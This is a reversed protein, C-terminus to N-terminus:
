IKLCGVFIYNMNVSNLYLTTQINNNNNNAKTIEIGFHDWVAVFTVCAYCDFPIEKNPNSCFFYLMTVCYECPCVNVEGAPYMVEIFKEWLKHSEVNVKTRM